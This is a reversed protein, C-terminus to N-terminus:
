DENNKEEILKRYSKWGKFNAYYNSNNQCVSCHEFPSYHENDLLDDHLKVDKNYDIEGDFTMYSLRACRATAVKLKLGNLHDYYWGLSAPQIDPLLKDLEAEDMKDSFPIHWEGPQLQTPISERMADWMSEALAQIHIEAGSTSIRWWEEETKPIYSGLKTAEVIYENRSRFTATSWELSEPSSLYNLEYQPCRLNFFNDFDTGTLLCTYWQFPELIRNCIQKSLKSNEYYQHKESQRRGNYLKEACKIASHCANIWDSRFTDVFLVGKKNTQTDYDWTYMNENTFYDSGQMGKHSKQWAIPIFPDDKVMKVMKEFPIARSSAGNRSFVRHTLLESHIMRPYTLLMTTIRNGQPNISDTIIQTNIKKM